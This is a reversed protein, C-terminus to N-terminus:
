DSPFSEQEWIQLILPHLYQVTLSTDAKLVEAPISDVGAAKGNKMAKVADTVEKKSPPATRIPIPTVNAVRTASIGDRQLNLM